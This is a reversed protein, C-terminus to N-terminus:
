LMNCGELRQSPSMMKQSHLTDSNFLKQMKEQLRSCPDARFNKETNVLFCKIIVVWTSFCHVLAKIKWLNATQYHVIIQSEDPWVWKSWILCKKWRTKHNLLLLFLYVKTM